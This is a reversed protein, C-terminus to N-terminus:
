DVSLTRFSGPMGLYQDAETASLRLNEDTKAKKIERLHATFSDSSLVELNKKHLEILPKEKGGYEVPIIDKDIINAVEDISKHTYLRGAVKASLVQKFIAVMADLAKSGSLLHIGKIRMGYGERLLTLSERVDVANFWKLVELMNAETYDAVAIIGNCYDHAQVYECQMFFYRYYNILGAKLTKANCKFIYIRYHDKTLKPLFCGYMDELLDPNKLDIEEYFHPLVTRSTCLKDLKTKAREVSGKSIIITRELYDRTFSKVTFHNQKKIWDELIDIAEDIRGPKDLDYQKRLYVLTDPNFEFLTDQPISEM